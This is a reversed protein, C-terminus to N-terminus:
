NANPVSKNVKIYEEPLATAKAAASIGNSTIPSSDADAPSNVSKYWRKHSTHQLVPIPIFHGGSLIKRETPTNRGRFSSVQETEVVLTVSFFANKWITDDEFYSTYNRSERATEPPMVHLVCTASRAGAWNKAERNVALLRALDATNIHAGFCACSVSKHCELTFIHGSEICLKERSEAAGTSNRITWTAGASEYWSQSDSALLGEQITM